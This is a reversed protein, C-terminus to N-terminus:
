LDDDKWKLTMVLEKFEEYFTNFSDWDYFKTSRLHYKGVDDIIYYFRYYSNKVGVQIENVDKYIITTGDKLYTEFGRQNMWQKDILGLCM